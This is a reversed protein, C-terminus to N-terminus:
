IHKRQFVIYRPKTEFFKRREEYLALLALYHPNIVIYDELTKVCLALLVLYHPNILRFIFEVASFLIM